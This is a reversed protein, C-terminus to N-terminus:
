LAVIEYESYGHYHSYNELNYAFDTPNEEHTIAGSCLLNSSFNSDPLLLREM